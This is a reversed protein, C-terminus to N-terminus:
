CGASDPRPNAHNDAGYTDIHDKLPAAHSGPIMQMCGNEETVNSIALWGTVWDHPEM